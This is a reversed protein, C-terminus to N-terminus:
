VCGSLTRLREAGSSKRARYTRDSLGNRLIETLSASSLGFDVLLRINLLSRRYFSVSLWNPKRIFLAGEIDLV